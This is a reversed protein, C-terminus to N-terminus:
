KPAALKQDLVIEYGTGNFVFAKFERATAFAREADLPTAVTATAAIPLTIM